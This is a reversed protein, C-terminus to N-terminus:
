KTENKDGQWEHLTAGWTLGGGFGICMIKQGKKLLGAQNMQSLALPISASSTNGHNKINMYFKNPDIKLKQYVYHIIRYNAQHCVFHDIDDIQLNAEQLLKEICVPIKKIAFKFVETGNMTLHNDENTALVTSNGSSDLYRHYLNNSREIVVAGAGDGFLICTSRDTYDILKSMVESGVVLAYQDEQLLGRAVELGYVFGSCAVNIDLAIISQNNLGLQQQLMCAISPTRQESTMTAVVIVAVKQLDLKDLAMLSAQYALDINNEGQVIYRSEIGTREKIWEDNTEVMKELDHNTLTTKPVYHGTSLITMGLM